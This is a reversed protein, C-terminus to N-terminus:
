IAQRVATITKSSKKLNGLSFGEKTFSLFLSLSPLGSLDVMALSHHPPEGPVYIGNSHQITM